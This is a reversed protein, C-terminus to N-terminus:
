LENTASREKREEQPKSAPSDYVVTEETFALTPKTTDFARVTHVHDHN